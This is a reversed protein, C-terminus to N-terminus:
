IMMRTWNWIDFLFEVSYFDNRQEKFIFLFTVQLFSLLISLIWNTGTIFDWSTVNGGWMCIVLSCILLFSSLLVGGINNNASATGHSSAWTYCGGGGWVHHHTCLPVTTTTTTPLDWNLGLYQGPWVYTYIQSWTPSSYKLINGYHNCINTKDVCLQQIDFLLTCHPTNITRYSRRQLLRTWLLLLILM